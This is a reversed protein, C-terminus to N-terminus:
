SHGAAMAVLLGVFVIPVFENTNGLAARPTILLFRGHKSAGNKQMFIM